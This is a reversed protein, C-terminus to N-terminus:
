DHRAEKADQEHRVFDDMRAGFRALIDYHTPHLHDRPLGSDSAWRIAHVAIFSVGTEKLEEVDRRLREILSAAEETISPKDPDFMTACSCHPMARLREVIDQEDTM